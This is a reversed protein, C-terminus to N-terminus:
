RHVLGRGVKEMVAALGLCHHRNHDLVDIWAERLREPLEDMSEVVRLASRLRHIDYFQVGVRHTAPVGYGAVRMYSTLPNYDMDYDGRPEIYVWGVNLLKWHRAVQLANVLHKEWWLMEDAPLAARVAAIDDISWAMIRRDEDISRQRLARFMETADGTDVRLRRGRVKKMPWLRPDVITARWRGELAHGILATDGRRTGVVGLHIARRATRRDVWIRQRPM